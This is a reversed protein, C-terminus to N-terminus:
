YSEYQYDYSGLEGTETMFAIAYCDIDYGTSDFGGCYEYECPIGFFQRVVNVAFRVVDEGGKDTDESATEIAETIKASVQAKDAM